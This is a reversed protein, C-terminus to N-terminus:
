TWTSLTRSCKVQHQVSPTSASGGARPSTTWLCPASPLVSPTVPEPSTEMESGAGLLLLAAQIAPSQRKLSAPVWCGPSRARRPPTLVAWGPGRGVPGQRDARWGGAGPPEIASPLPERRPRVPCGGSSCARPAGGPPGTAPLPRLTLRPFDCRRGETMTCWRGGRQFPGMNMFTPARVSLALPTRQQRCTRRPRAATGAPRCRPTERSGAGRLSSARVSPGPPCGGLAQM